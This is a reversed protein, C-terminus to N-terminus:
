GLFCFGKPCTAQEPKQPPAREAPRKPGRPCGEQGCSGGTGERVNTGAMDMGWGRRAVWPWKERRQQGPVLCRCMRGRAGADRITPPEM